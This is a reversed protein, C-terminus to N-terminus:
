LDFNAWYNLTGQQDVFVFFAKLDENKELVKKSKDLGMVKFATAFADATICDKAIVSSSLIEADLQQPFGTEPDITHAITKGGELVRYNEYNGSTALAQHNLSVAKVLEEKEDIDTSPKRIGVTWQDKNCKSGKAYTEGGIEVLFSEIQLSNLYDAIQDVGYGKALASFDLQSEPNKKYISDQKLEFNNLDSLGLLRNVETSDIELSDVELRKYGFGWYNVLPMVAPNFSGQTSEHIEKGKVFNISFHKDVAVAEEGAQNVRSIVSTPLYTSVSMNIEKLLSDTHEKLKPIETGAYKIQYTTGM